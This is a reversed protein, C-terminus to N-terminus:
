AATTTTTPRTPFLPRCAATAATYTANRVVNAMAAQPNNPDVTGIGTVGHNKLCNIYAVLATRFQASNAGGGGGFTPRLSACASQAANYTAQSVGPPLTTTGGFGGFGGGGGGGGGGGFGGGGGGFGGGGGGTGGTGPTRAPLNVGHSALCNRYAVAAARRASTNNATTTSTPASTTATTKASSGGGCAAITTALTAAFIVTGARRAFPNSL